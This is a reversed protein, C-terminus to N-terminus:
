GSAAQSGDTGAGRPRYRDKLSAVLANAEEWEERISDQHDYYYALAAHVDALTLHPHADVIADPSMGGHEHESAVQSVKIDTGAVVPRQGSADIHEAIGKALSM